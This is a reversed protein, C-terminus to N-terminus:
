KLPLDPFRSAVADIREGRNGTLNGRPTGRPRSGGSPHEAGSGQQQTGALITEKYPYSDVVIEIAEEFGALEGPKSRSYIPNGDLGNAITRKLSEDYKFLPGFRAQVLDAPIGCKERIFKSNAFDNGTKEGHLEGKYKDRETEVANIRMEANKVAQAVREEAARQAADKIEQVKGATVLQGQDLNSVTTLAEIAKAPDEIGEFAKLKNSMEESRERNEKAEGNLRTITAVTYNADFATEKNDDDVYVPKGDQVVVNGQEDLKLKLPMTNFDEQPMWRM